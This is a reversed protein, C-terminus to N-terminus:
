LLDNNPDDSRPNHASFLEHGPDEGPAEAAGLAEMGHTEHTEEGRASNLMAMQRAMVVGDAAFAPLADLQAKTREEVGALATDTDDERYRGFYRVSFTFLAVTLPQHIFAMTRSEEPTAEHASGVGALHAVFGSVLLGVAFAIRQCFSVMMFFSAEDRRGMRAAGEEVIDTFLSLKLTNESANLLAAVSGHLLIFLFLGTSGNPWLLGLLRLVIPLPEWWLMFYQLRQLSAHKGYREALRPMFRTSYLVGFTNFLLFWSTQQPNFRFFFVQYYPGLGYSIGFGLAGAFSAVLWVKVNWIGLPELLVRMIHEAAGKSHLGAKKPEDSAKASGMSSIHVATGLTSLLMASAGVHAALYGAARYGDTNFFGDDKGEATPVLYWRTIIMGLATGGLHGAVVRASVLRTREPADSALENPLADCPTDFISLALRTLILWTCLHGFIAGTEGHLEEPPDYLHGMALMFPVAALLMLGHRRCGLLGYTDSIYAIVPDILGDLVATLGIAATVRQQGVGLLSGYYIILHHTTFSANVLASLGYAVRTVAPRRLKVAATELYFENSYRYGM